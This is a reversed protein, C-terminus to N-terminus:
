VAAGKDVVIGVGQRATAVVARRQRAVAVAPWWCIVGGLLMLLGGLWVLPVLPNIFVRITAQAPGNWDSLFVYLDTFGMTTISIHSAPQNAFSSYLTQGPYIYGLLHNGQWLQLQATVTQQGTDYTSVNGFFVLRYGGISMSQGPKLVGEQQVQFFNSGIVGVILLVLGLHVVYGGYRQRYRKFLMFLAKGYPEGHGHRVLMGRWLEYLIAAATFACVDFGINPLLDTV